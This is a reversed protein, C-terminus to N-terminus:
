IEAVGETGGGRVCEGCVYLKWGSGGDSRTCLYMPKTGYTGAFARETGGVGGSVASSTDSGAAVGILTTTAFGDAGSLDNALVGSGAVSLTAGEVVSETDASAVPGDDTIDVTVTSTNGDGDTIEVAISACADDATQPNAGSAHAYAADQTFTVEGTTANISFNGAAATVAGSAFAYSYSGTGGTGTVTVTDSSDGSAVGETGGGRVASDDTSFDGSVSGSLDSNSVSITLTTTSVDGDSDEVTYVFVDTENQQSQMRLRWMRIVEDAALTLTGYTGAVGSGVGGSVASSTDSGAAM